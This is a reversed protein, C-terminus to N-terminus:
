KAKNLKDMLDDASKTLDERIAKFEAADKKNSCIRKILGEEVTVAEDVLAELNKFDKDFYIKQFICEEVYDTFFQKVGKKLRRKSAM